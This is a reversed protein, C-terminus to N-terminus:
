SWLRSQHARIAQAQEREARLREAEAWASAIRPGSFGMLRIIVALIGGM